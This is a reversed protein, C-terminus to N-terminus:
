KKPTKDRTKTVCFLFFCKFIVYGGKKKKKEKKFLKVTDYEIVDRERQWIVEKTTREKCEKKDQKGKAYPM